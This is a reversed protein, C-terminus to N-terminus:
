EPHRQQREEAREEVAEQGKEVGLGLVAGGLAEDRRDGNAGREQGEEDGELEEEVELGQILVPTQQGLVHGGPHLGALQVHADVEHEIRERRHHDQRDGEDPREDVQVRHAVHAM